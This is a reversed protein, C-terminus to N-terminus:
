DEKMSTWCTWCIVNPDQADSCYACDEYEDPTVIGVARFLAYVLVAFIIMYIVLM